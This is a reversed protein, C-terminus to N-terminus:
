TELVSSMLPFDTYPCLSDVVAQEVMVLAVAKTDSQSEVAVSVSQSQQAQKL